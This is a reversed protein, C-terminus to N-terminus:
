SIKKHNGEGEQHALKKSRFKKTGTHDGMWTGKADEVKFGRSEM